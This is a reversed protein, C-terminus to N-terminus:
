ILLPSNHGSPYSGSISCIDFIFLNNTKIILTFRIGLKSAWFIFIKTSISITRMVIYMEGVTHDHAMNNLTRPLHATKSGCQCAQVNVLMRPVLFM